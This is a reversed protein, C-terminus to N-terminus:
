KSDLDYFFHRPFSLMRFNEGTASVGNRELFEKAEQYDMFQQSEPSSGILDDILRGLDMWYHMHALFDSLPEQAIRRQWDSFTSGPSLDPEAEKLVARVAKWASELGDLSPPDPPPGGQQNHAIYQNRWQKMPESEAEADAILERIRRVRDHRVLKPLRKIAVVGKRRDTLRTLHLIADAWMLARLDVFLRPGMLDPLIAAGTERKALMVLLHYRRTGNWYHTRLEEFLTKGNM